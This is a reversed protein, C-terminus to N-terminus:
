FSLVKCSDNVDVGPIGIVCCAENPLHFDVKWTGFTVLAHNVDGYIITQAIAEEHVIVQM